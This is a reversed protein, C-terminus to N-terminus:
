LVSNNSSVLILYFQIASFIHNNSCVRLPFKPFRSNPIEQDAVKFNIDVSSVGSALGCSQFKQPNAEQFVM